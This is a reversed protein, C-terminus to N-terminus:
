AMPFAPLWVVPVDMLTLAPAGWVTATTDPEPCDAATLVASALGSTALTVSLEPLGTGPTDTVKAAGELLALPVNALVPQM